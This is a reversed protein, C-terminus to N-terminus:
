SGNPTSRTESIMDIRCLPCEDHHQLWSVICDEHFYHNCVNDGDTTDEHNTSRASRAITDENKYEELCISCCDHNKQIKGDQSFFGLSSFFSRVSNNDGSDNDNKNSDDESDETLTVDNEQTRVMELDPDETEDSLTLKRLALRDKILEIRKENADANNNDIQASIDNSSETQEQEQERRSESIKVACRFATYAIVIIAWFEADAIHSIVM